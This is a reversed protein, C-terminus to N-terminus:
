TPTAAAPAKARPRTPNFGMSRLTGEARDIARRLDGLAALLDARAVARRERTAAM